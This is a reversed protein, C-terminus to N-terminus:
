ARVAVNVDLAIDPVSDCYFTLVGAGQAICRVGCLNYEEYNETEPVPSVFVTNNATVKAVSVNQRNNTWNEAPLTATDNVGALGDLADAPTPDSVSPCIKAALDDPLVSAKNYPTGEVVPMDDRTLTVTVAEGTLLKQSQSADVIMKYQGPAGPIRDTM